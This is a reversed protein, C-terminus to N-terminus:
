ELLWKRWNVRLVFYVNEKSASAVYNPLVNDVFLCTVKIACFKLVTACVTAKSKVTWVVSRLLLLNMQMRKLNFKTVFSQVLNYNCWFNERNGTKKCYLIWANVGALDLVNYFVALPWRRCGSKTSMAHCMSDLMDVGFKNENYYLVTHPKRKEDVQCQTGTHQTPMIHVVKKAKAQYRTLHINGSQFFVSDHLQLNDNIPPLERRDARVTGTISTRQELLKEALTKNTFFNDVTINYGKGYLPEALKMVVHTGLGTTRTEDKGLYPLVNYCYKTEVDALIWFKIGFKDPKSSM